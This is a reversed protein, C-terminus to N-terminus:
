RIDAETLCSQAFKKPLKFEGKFFTPRHQPFSALFGGYKSVAFPPITSPRVSYDLPCSGGKKEGGRGKKLGTEPRMNVVFGFHAVRNKTTEPRKNVPRNNKHAIADPFFRFGSAFCLKGIFTRKSPSYGLSTKLSSDRKKDCDSM